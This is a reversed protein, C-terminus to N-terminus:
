KNRRLKSLLRRIELHVAASQRVVLLGNALLISTKSNADWSNGGTHAQLIEELPLEEGGDEDDDSFTTGISTDSLQLEVGPFDRIRFLLDRVDYIRLKVREYGNEKTTVLLVGEKWIWVLGLPRLLLSLGSRATINKVIISVPLDGRSAVSQDVLINLGTMDRFYDISDALPTDQFELSIRMNQLKKRASEAGEDQPLTLFVLSAVLVFTM